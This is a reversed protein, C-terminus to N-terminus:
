SSPFPAGSPDHDPGDEPWSAPHPGGHHIRSAAKGVQGPACRGAHRHCHGDGTNEPSGYFGMGGCRARLSPVVGDAPQLDYGGTTRNGANQRAPLREAMKRGAWLAIVEGQREHDSRRSPDWLIRVKRKRHGREPRRFFAEGNMKILRLFTKHFHRIPRTRSPVAPLRPVPNRAGSPRSRRRLFPFLRGAM